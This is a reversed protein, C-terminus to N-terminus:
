IELRVQQCPALLMQQVRVNLAEDASHQGALYNLVIMVIMLMIMVMVIIKMVIMMLMMMSIVMVIM